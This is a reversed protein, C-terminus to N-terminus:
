SDVGLTIKNNNDIYFTHITLDGIDHGWIGYQGNTTNRNYMGPINAPEVKSTEEEQKYIAKYCEVCFSMLDYRSLGNEGTDFSAKFPTSLPYDIELEYKTYPKLIFEAPDVRKVEEPYREAYGENFLSDGTKWRGPWVYGAEIERKM